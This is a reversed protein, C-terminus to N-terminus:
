LYIDGTEPKLKPFYTIAWLETNIDYCHIKKDHDLAYIKDDCVVPSNSRGYDYSAREILDASRAFERKKVNFVFSEKTNNGGFVLIKGSDFQIAAPWFRETWKGPHYITLLKWQTHIYECDFSQVLKMPNHGDFGGFTYIYRSEFICAALESNALTLPPMAAWLDKDIDYRECFAQAGLENRMGISYIYGRRLLLHTEYKARLMDGKKSVKGSGLDVQYTAKEGEEAYKGQIKARGGILYIKKRAEVIEPYYIGTNYPITTTYKEYINYINVTHQKMSYYALSHPREEEVVAELRKCELEGNDEIEILLDKFIQRVSGVKGEIQAKFQKQDYISALIGRIYEHEVRVKIIGEYDRSELLENIKEVEKKKREDSMVLESRKIIDKYESCLRDLCKQKEHFAERIKDYIHAYFNKIETIYENIQQTQSLLSEQDPFRNAPYNTLLEKAIVPLPKWQHLVHNSELCASCILHECSKEMCYMSAERKPHMNCKTAHIPYKKKEM